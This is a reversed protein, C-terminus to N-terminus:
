LLYLGPMFGLSTDSIIESKKGFPECLPNNTVIKRTLAKWFLPFNKPQM